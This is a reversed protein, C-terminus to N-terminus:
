VARVRDSNKSQLKNQIMIALLMVDKNGSEKIFPIDSNKNIKEEEKQLGLIKNFLIRRRKAVVSKTENFKNIADKNKDNIYSFGQM